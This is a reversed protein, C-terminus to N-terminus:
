HIDWSDSHSQVFAEVCEEMEQARMEDELRMATTLMQESIEADTPDGLAEMAEFRVEQCISCSCMHDHSNSNLM